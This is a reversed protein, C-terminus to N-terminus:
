WRKALKLYVIANTYTDESNLLQYKNHGALISFTVRYLTTWDMGINASEIHEDSLNWVSQSDPNVGLLRNGSMGSVYVSEPVFHNQSNYWYKLLVDTSQYNDEFADSEITYFRAQVWTSAGFLSFGKDVRLDTQFTWPTQSSNISELPSRNRPQIATPCM